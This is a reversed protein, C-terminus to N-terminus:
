KKGDAKGKEDGHPKAEIRLRREREGDRQLNEGDTEAPEVADQGRGTVAAGEAERVRQGVAGVVDRAV